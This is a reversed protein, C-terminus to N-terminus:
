KVNKAKLVLFQWFGEKKERKEISHGDAVLSAPVNESPSGNDLLLTIQANDPMRAILTRARASCEPCQTGRLDLTGSENGKPTEVLPPNSAFRLIDLEFKEPNTNWSALPIKTFPLITFFAKEPAISAKEPANKKIIELCAYHLLTRLSDEFGAKERNANAWKQLIELKDQM